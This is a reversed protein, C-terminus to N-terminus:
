GRKFIHEMIWDVIKKILEWIEFPQPPEPEPEPVPVPGPVPVPEPVPPVPEPLPGPEPIPDPVPVSQAKVELDIDITSRPFILVHSSITIQGHYNGAAMGVSNVNVQITKPTSGVEPRFYIWSANATADWTPTLEGEPGKELSIYQYPPIFQSGEQVMFKLSQPSVVIDSFQCPM